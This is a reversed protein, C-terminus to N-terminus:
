TREHFHTENSHSYFYWFSSIITATFAILAIAYLLRFFIWSKKKEPKKVCTCLNRESRRDNRWKWKMEATWIHNIEYIMSLLFIMMLLEARLLKAVSIQPLEFIAHHSSCLHLSPHSKNMWMLHVNRVLKACMEWADGPQGIRLKYFRLMDPRLWVQM